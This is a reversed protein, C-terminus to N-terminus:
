LRFGERESHTLYFLDQVVRIIKVAFPALARETILDTDLPLPQMLFVRKIFFVDHASSARLSCIELFLETLSAVTFGPICSKVAKTLIAHIFHQLLCYDIMICSIVKGTFRGVNFCPLMNLSIMLDICLTHKQGGILADYNIKLLARFDAIRDLLKGKWFPPGQGTMQEMYELFVQISVM